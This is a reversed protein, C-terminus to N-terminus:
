TPSIGSSTSKQFPNKSDPVPNVNETNFHYKEEHKKQVPPPSFYAINPSIYDHFHNKGCGICKLIWQWIKKFLSATAHDVADFFHELVDNEGVYGQKKLYDFGEFLIGFGDTKTLAMIRNCAQKPTSNEPMNMCLYVNKLLSEINKINLNETSIAKELPKIADLIKKYKQFSHEYKELFTMLTENKTGWMSNKTELNKFGENNILEKIKHIVTTPMSDEPIKIAAMFHKFPLKIARKNLVAIALHQSTEIINDFKEKHHEKAYQYTSSKKFDSKLQDLSEESAKITRRFSENKEKLSDMLRYANLDNKSESIHAKLASLNTSLEEVCIKQAALIATRTKIHQLVEKEDPPFISYEHIPSTIHDHLQKRINKIDPKSRRLQSFERAPKAYHLLTSSDLKKAVPANQTSNQGIDEIPPRKFCSFFYFSLIESIIYPFNTSPTKNKEEKHYQSLLAGMKEKLPSTRSILASSEPTPMENSDHASASIASSLRKKSRPDVIPEDRDMIRMQIMLWSFISEEKRKQIVEILMDKLAKVRYKFAAIDKSFLGIAKEPVVVTISKTINDIINNTLDTLVAIQDANSKRLFQKEWDDLEEKLPTMSDPKLLTDHWLSYLTKPAGAFDADLIANIELTAQDLIDWAKQNNEAILEPKSLSM